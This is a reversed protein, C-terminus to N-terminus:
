GVHAHEVDLAAEVEVSGGRREVPRSGDEGQTERVAHGAVQVVVVLIEHDPQRHRLHRLGARRQQDPRPCGVDGAADMAREPDGWLCNPCARGEVAEPMPREPDLSYVEVPLVDTWPMDAVDPVAM